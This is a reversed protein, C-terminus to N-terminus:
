RALDEVHIDAWFSWDWQSNGRPGPDTAFTLDGPADMTVLTELHQLGRDETVSVPNLFREFLPTGPGPDAQVRFLVGDTRAGNQYAGACIGYRGGVRYTGPQLSYRIEGPAHVGLVPRGECERAEVPHHSRVGYGMPLRGGASPGGPARFRGDRGLVVAVENAVTRAIRAHAERNPHGDGPVRLRRRDEGRFVPLLDVVRVSEERGWAQVAEHIPLYTYDEGLDETVDPLVFVLLTMGRSRCLRAIRRFADRSVRWKPSDRDFGALYARPGTAHQYADPRFVESGVVRNTTEWIMELLWSRVFRHREEPPMPVTLQPEADNMGYGLVVVDPRYRPATEALLRAEQDTGYGIVAANIVEARLAMEDNLVREVVRPYAEEEAVAWGFTYSDGLALVRAVGPLRPGVPPSRFGDANTRWRWRSLVRGSHGRVLGTGAANPRLAFFLPPPRLRVIESRFARVQSRYRAAQYGRVVYESLLAAAVISALVLALNKCREIRARPNPVM